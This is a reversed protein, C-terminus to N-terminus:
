SAAARSKLHLGLLTNDMDAQGLHVYKIISRIGDHGMIMALSVL